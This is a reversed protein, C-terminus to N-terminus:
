KKSKPCHPGPCCCSHKMTVTLCHFHGRYGVHCKSPNRACFHGGDCYLKCEPNSCFGYSEGNKFIKIPHYINKGKSTDVKTHSGYEHYDPHKDFYSEDPNGAEYNHDGNVYDKSTHKEEAYLDDYDSEVSISKDPKNKRRNKLPKFKRSKSTPKWKRSKKGSSFEEFVDDITEMAEESLTNRKVLSILDRENGYDILNFLARKLM